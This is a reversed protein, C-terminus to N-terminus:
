TVLAVDKRDDLQCWVTPFPSFIDSKYRLINPTEQSFDLWFHGYKTEMAREYAKYLAKSNQPSVQRFFIQVSSPDRINRMLVVASSNLSLLRNHKSKFFLCQSIVIVNINRHHSGKIFLDAVEDNNGSEFILDDLVVTLPSEKSSQLLHFNPLGNHM